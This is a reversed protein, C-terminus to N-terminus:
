EEDYEEPLEEPEEKKEKKKNIKIIISIKTTIYEIHLELTRVFRDVMRCFVDDIEATEQSYTIIEDKIRKVNQESTALANYFKEDDQKLITSMITRVSSFYRYLFTSIYSIFRAEQLENRSMCYSKIVRYEKEVAAIEREVEKQFGERNHEAREVEDMADYTKEKKLKIIPKPKPEEIKSGEKILQESTTTNKKVYLEWRENIKDLSTGPHKKSFAIAYDDINTYKM